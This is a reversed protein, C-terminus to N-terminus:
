RAYLQKVRGWSSMETATPADAEITRTLAYIWDGTYSEDNDAANGALYFTVSGAAVNPATWALNWEVPGGSVGIFTGDSTHKLFDVSGYPDESLQTKVPDTVALQGGQSQDDADRLVTMEFGWRKQAPDALRVTLNYSAGPTYTAPLGILELTGDGGNLPNEYHCTTCDILDPPQGAYGDPPGFSFAGATSPALSGVLILLGGALPLRGGRILGPQLQNRPQSNM